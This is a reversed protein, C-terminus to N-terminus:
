DGSVPSFAQQTVVVLPGKESRTLTIAIHEAVGEHNRAVSFHRLEGSTPQTLTIVSRSRSVNDPATVYDEIVETVFRTGGCGDAGECEFVITYGGEEFRERYHSALANIQSGTSMLSVRRFVRGEVRQVPVGGEADTPGTPLSLAAVPDDMIGLSRSAPPSPFRKMEAVVASSGAPDAPAQSGGEDSCGPLTFACALLLWPLRRGSTAAFGPLVARTHTTM